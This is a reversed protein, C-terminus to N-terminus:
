PLWYQVSDILSHPAQRFAELRGHRAVGTPRHSEARLGLHRDRLSKWLLPREPRQHAPLRGEVPLHPRLHGGSARRLRVPPPRAAGRGSRRRCGPGRVPAAVAVHRRPEHRLRGHRPLDGRGSRGGLRCLGVVEPAAPGRQAAHRAARGSKGCVGAGLGGRRRLEWAHLLTATGSAVLQQTHGGAAAPSRDGEGIRGLRLTGGGAVHSDPGAGAGWCSASRM